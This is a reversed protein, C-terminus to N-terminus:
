AAILAGAGVAERIAVENTYSIGWLYCYYGEDGNAGMAQMDWRLATARDIGNDLMMQNIHADWRVQAREEAQREEHASREAAALLHDWEEQKMADSMSHWRGWWGAGPRSGYADKHLDSVTSDDFTYVM